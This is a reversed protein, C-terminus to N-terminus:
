VEMECKMVRGSHEQGVAMAEDAEEASGDGRWPGTSADDRVAAALFRLGYGDAKGGPRAPPRVEDGAVPETVRVIAASEDREEDGSGNIRRSRPEGSVTPALVLVPVPV